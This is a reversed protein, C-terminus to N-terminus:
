LFRRYRRRISTWSKPRKLRDIRDAVRWVVSREYPDSVIEAVFCYCNGILSYNPILYASAVNCPIDRFSKGNPVLRVCKKLTLFFSERGSRCVFIRSLCMEWIRWRMSQTGRSLECRKRRVRIPLCLILIPSPVCPRKADGWLPRQFKTEGLGCRGLHRARDQACPWRQFLDLSLQGLLKRCGV